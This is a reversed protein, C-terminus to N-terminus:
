YGQAHSSLSPKISDKSGPLISLWGCQQVPWDLSKCDARLSLMFGPMGRLQKLLCPWLGTRGVDLVLYPTGRVYTLRQRVSGTGVCQVFLQGPGHCPYRHAQVM